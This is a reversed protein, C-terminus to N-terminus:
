GGTVEALIGTAGAQLMASALPERTVQDVPV